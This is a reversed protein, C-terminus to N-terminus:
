PKVGFLLILLTCNFGSPSETLNAVQGASLTELLMRVEEESTKGGSATVIDRVVDGSTREPFEASKRVSGDGLPSFASSSNWVGIILTERRLAKLLQNSDDGKIILEVGKEGDEGTYPGYAISYDRATLIEAASDKNLEISYVLAKCGM